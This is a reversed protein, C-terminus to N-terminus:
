ILSYQYLMASLVFLLIVILLCFRKWIKTLFHFRWDLFKIFSTMTLRHRLFHIMSWLLFFDKTWYFIVISCSLQKKPFFQILRTLCLSIFKLIMLKIALSLHYDKFLDITTLWNYRINKAIILWFTLKRWILFIPYSRM